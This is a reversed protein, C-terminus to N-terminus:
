CLPLTASHNFAGSEFDPSGERTGHTRIGGRGGNQIRPYEPQNPFDNSLSGCASLQDALKVAALLNLRGAIIRAAELGHM